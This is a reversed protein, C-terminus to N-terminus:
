FSQEARGTANSRTGCEPCRHPSARMDYGCGVCLGNQGRWARLTPRRWARVGFYVLPTTALLPAWLPVDFDRRPIAQTNNWYYGHSGRMSIGYVPPGFPPQWAARSLPIPADTRIIRLTGTLLKCRVAPFPPPFPEDKRPLVHSVGWLVVVVLAPM